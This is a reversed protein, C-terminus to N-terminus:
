LAAARAIGEAGGASLEVAVPPAAVLPGAAISPVAAASLEAVAFQEAGLQEAVAAM